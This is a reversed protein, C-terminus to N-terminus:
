NKIARAEKDKRDVMLWGSDVKGEPRLVIKVFKSLVLGVPLAASGL